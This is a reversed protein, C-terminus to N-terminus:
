EISLLIADHFSWLKNKISSHRYIICFQTQVIIAPWELINEYQHDSFSLLINIQFQLISKLLVALYYDTKSFSTPSGPHSGPNLLVRSFSNIYEKNDTIHRDTSLPKRPMVRLWLTEQHARASSQWKEEILYDQNMKKCIFKKWSWVFIITQGIMPATVYMSSSRFKLVNLSLMISCYPQQLPSALRSLYALVM